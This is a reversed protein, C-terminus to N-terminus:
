FFSFPVKDRSKNGKDDPSAGPAPGGVQIKGQKGFIDKKESVKMRWVEEGEWDPLVVPFIATGRNTGTYRLRTHQHLKLSAASVIHVHQEQEITSFGRVKELRSQASEEDLLIALPRPVVTQLPHGESDVFSNVM